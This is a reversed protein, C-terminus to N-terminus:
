ELYKDWYFEEDTINSDLTNLILDVKKRINEGNNLYEVKKNITMLEAFIEARDEKETAKSYRTVFYTNNNSSNEENYVYEKNLKSTDSNYKFGIPNLNNWTFFVDTDNINMYYELIHFMEHHLAREFKTSNSVYMRFENLKNRSALAINDNNFSNVIIIYMPYDGSKFIDFIDKPYKGLSEYIKKLNNNIIYIDEQSIANVKDTFSRVNSGYQITIGFDKKIRSIYMKNQDEINEDTDIILAASDESNQSGYIKDTVGFISLIGIFVLSLIIFILLDTILSLRRRRVEQTM